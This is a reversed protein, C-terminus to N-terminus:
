SSVVTKPLTDGLGMEWAEESLGEQARLSEQQRAAEYFRRQQPAQGVDCATTQVVEGNDPLAKFSLKNM